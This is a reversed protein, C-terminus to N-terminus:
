PRRPRAPVRFVSVDDYFAPDGNSNWWGPVGLVPLPWWPKDASPGDRLHEIKAGFAESLADIDGSGLSAPAEIHGPALIDPADGLPSDAGGAAGHPLPVAWVHATIAKRPQLLKDLLAHGVLSLRSRAWDARREVFLTHWDRRHLADVLEDPAEWIAGNEDFVTLADRAAGREPGVGRTAIEAAQARNMKWKLGPHALWVLGNFFDHANDRTPVSGTRAIFSEYPEDPPADAADIFRPPMSAPADRQDLSPSHGRLSAAVQDLAQATSSGESRIRAVERGLDRYPEFWPASWDIPLAGSM